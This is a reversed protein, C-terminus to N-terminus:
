LPLLQSPLSKDTIWARVVDSFLHAAQLNWVHGVEPVIVGKSGVIRKQLRRAMMKAVATEKEGVAVLVPTSAETPTTIDSYASLVVKTMASPSITKIDEEVMSSFASPVGFQWRFFAALQRASLCAVIPRNVCLQFKLLLLLFKNLRCATGSLMVHDVVEPAEAMLSQAVVGGFSLGVIHARGNSTSEHILATLRRVVDHMQFPGINASQGHEPLDPALCHFASLRELQPLWMRGSLPSGHLFVIAPNAGPNSEYVHLKMKRCGGVSRCFTGTCILGITEVV